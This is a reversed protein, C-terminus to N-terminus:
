SRTAAKRATLKYARCDAQTSVSDCAVIAPIGRRLAGSEPINGMEDGSGRGFLGMRVRQETQEM